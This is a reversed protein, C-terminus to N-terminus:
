SHKLGFCREHYAQGEHKFSEGALFDM